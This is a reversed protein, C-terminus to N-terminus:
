CCEDGRWAELGERVAVAAVALGIMPDLWWWGLWSNAALGGLVAGALYACLLNQMGEGATAGSGLRRGLHQKTIGLVPMVVLSAATLAIGLVSTEAAQGSILKHVSEVAVYPALLWFSVEVASSLAWGILAISAAAVGASIGAAGEITMWALSVWSLTKVWGTARLWGDDRVPLTEARGDHTAEGGWSHATSTPHPESGGSM